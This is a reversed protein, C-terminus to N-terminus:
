LYTELIQHSMKCMTEYDEHTMLDSLSNINFRIRINETLPCREVVHAEDQVGTGCVCVREEVPLRGRGRRNWRGAEIALSHASLRLRTWSIREREDVTNSRRTYIDHVTRSPNIQQYIALRTSTHDSYIKTSIREKSIRIDDLHEDLLKRLYRATINGSDMVINFVTIFPDDVMGNRKAVISRFFVRQKSAILAKFEPYGLEMLCLDTTTTNRVGLLQKLCTHYLKAVPRLGANLWSECGYVLSSMLCADFVKRKIFFPFDNNKELFSTFKLVHAIRTVAHAKVASSPKGDSTFASGLYIYQLCHQVTLGEVVLPIRDEEEGHVCMFKTKSLNIEM